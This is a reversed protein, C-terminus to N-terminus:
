IKTGHQRLMPLFFTLNAIRYNNFFSLYASVPAELSISSIEYKWFHKHFSYSYINLAGSSLKLFDSTKLAQIYM